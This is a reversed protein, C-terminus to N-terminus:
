LQLHVDLNTTYYVGGDQEEGFWLCGETSVAISPKHSTKFGGGVLTQSSWPLNGKWWFRFRDESSMSIQTEEGDAPLSWNNISV